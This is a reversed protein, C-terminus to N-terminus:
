DIRCKVQVVFERAVDEVRHAEYVADNNGYTLWVGRQRLLTELVYPQIAVDANGVVENRANGDNYRYTTTKAVIMGIVQGNGDLLPGGSNGNLVSSSFRMWGQEGLPGTDSIFEAARTTLAEGHPHGVVVVEDGEHMPLNSSRFVAAMAPSEPVRLLAVDHETDKMLIEAKTELGDGTVEASDCEKVVHANTLIYGDKNVFFGTGTSYHVLTYETEAHALSIAGFLMCSFTVGAFAPTWIEPYRSEGTHRLKTYSFWKRM